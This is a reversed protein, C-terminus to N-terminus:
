ALQKGKPFISVTQHLFGPYHKWILLKGIDNLAIANRSASLCFHSDRLGTGKGQQSWPDWSQCVVSPCHYQSAFVLNGECTCEGPSVGPKNWNLHPFSRRCPYDPLTAAAQLGQCHHECTSNSPFQHENIRTNVASEVAVCSPSHVLVLQAGPFLGFLGLYGCTYDSLM